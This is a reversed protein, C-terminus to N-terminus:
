KERKVKSKKRKVPKKGTTPFKEIEQRLESVTQKNLKQAKDFNAERMARLQDAKTTPTSM